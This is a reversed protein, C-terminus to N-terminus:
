EFNLNNCQNRKYAIKRKIKHKYIIKVYVHIDGQYSVRDHIYDISFNQHCYYIGLLFLSYSWSIGCDCVASLGMTERPLAAFCDRSM